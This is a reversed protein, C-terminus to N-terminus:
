NEDAGPTEPCPADKRVMFLFRWNNASQLIKWSSSETLIYDTVPDNASGSLPTGPWSTPIKQPFGPEFLVVRVRKATLQSLMDNAQEPTNMGLQFYEYRSPSFTATLYYYLPLYPYVLITEGPEVHAQMYGLVNDREPLTIQGRRAASEVHAGAARTLLAPEVLLLAIAVFAT